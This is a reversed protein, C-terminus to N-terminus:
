LSNNYKFLLFIVDGKTEILHSEGAALGRLFLTWPAPSISVRKKYYLIRDWTFGLYHLWEETIPQDLEDEYDWKFHCYNHFSNASM